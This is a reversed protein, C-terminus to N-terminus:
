KFSLQCIMSSRSCSSLEKLLEVKLESSCLTCITMTRLVRSNQMIYKAFYLGSETGECNIISCKRLQSSLCEPVFCPSTWVLDDSDDFSKRMDLVFNQLMPCQKLMALVMDWSMDWERTLELHTLNPFIPIDNMYKDIGLSGVFIDFSVDHIDARVLKSLSGGNKNSPVDELGWYYIDSLGMYELIPCRTLLDVLNQPQPFGVDNLHLTKLSPLDVVSFQDLLLRALNLVVLTNCCFICSSLSLRVGSLQIYLNELGRRIAANVWIKLDFDSLYLGARCQLRFTTIPFDRNLITAYIFDTFCHFPKSSQDDFFLNSVVSLWLPKWRKSLISTVVAMPTPLFSLIHCLLEDPLMSIRDVAM